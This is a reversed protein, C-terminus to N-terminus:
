HIFAIEEFPAGDELWGAKVSMEPVTAGECSGLGVAV